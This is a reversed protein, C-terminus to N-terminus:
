WQGKDQNISRNEANPASRRVTKVLEALACKRVIRVIIVILAIIKIAQANQVREAVTVFISTVNRVANEADPVSRRATKVVEARVCQRAIPVCIAIIASDGKMARANTAVGATMVTIITANAVVSAVNLVFRRVTLVIDACACIRVITVCIVPIAFVKKLGRATTADEATMAYRIAVSRVIREASM